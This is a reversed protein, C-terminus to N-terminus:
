ITKLADKTWASVMRALQDDIADLEGESLGGRVESWRLTTSGALYAGRTRGVFAEVAALRARTAAYAQRANFADQHRPPGPPPAARPSRAASLRAALEHFQATVDM